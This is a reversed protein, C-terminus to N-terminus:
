SASGNSAVTSRGDIQAAGFVTVIKMDQDMSYFDGMMPDVGGGMRATNPVKTFIQPTEFGNLFGMEVCPRAQTMPDVVLAWSTAGRSGSTVEIPIYPDMVLDINRVLWNNVQLFQGPQASGAGGGENTLYVSLSNMLNNATVELAPGYVLKVRGTILIPDGGSDRMGALIKFGDSLGQVGLVPNNSAAGNATIIKNGYGTTYLSAHPGNADWFKGTIFKSIGRNGAIALRNSLDTFIGLDDNVFARWNVSTMAQYLSPSYQIPATSATAPSAGGQPVPGTLARQPPPAAADMATLPTVAGDLLYRSVTRFDRLPHMKVLSKNVIPYANYYGYYMRDLVDVYLAQYDTVSMTERLGMQRGTGDSLVNTYLGPYKEALYRVFVESSPNMAQRMMVADERGSLVDSYLRAAEVVRRQHRAGANRRAATFGELGAHSQIPGGNFSMAGLNQGSLGAGAFDHNM